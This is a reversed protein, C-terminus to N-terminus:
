ETFSLAEAAARSIPWRGQLRLGSAHLEGNKPFPGPSHSLRQHAAKAAAESHYDADLVLRYDHEAFGDLGLVVFQADGLSEAFPRITQPLNDPESLTSADLALFAPYAPTYPVQVGSSDAAVTWAAQSAPSLVVGATDPSTPLFSLAQEGEFGPIECFTNLCRGNVQRVSNLINAWDFRGRILLYREGSPLVSSAVYDLDEAYDLFLREALRRYTPLEAGIPGSLLDLFGAERLVAVNIGVILAQDTPLRRFM